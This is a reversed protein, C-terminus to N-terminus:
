NMEKIKEVVKELEMGRSAKVLVVDNEELIENLKIDEKNDYHYVLSPRFGEKLAEEAIYKANDGVLVLVDAKNVSYAGVSRHGQEAYEGLEFIDGLIAVKRRNYLSLIDLSAKMSDPSANYTDNIITIGNKGNEVIDLRMPTLKFDRLGERIKRKDMGLTLGVAIASMANYVNHKGSVPIIYEGIEGNVECEFICGSETMHYHVCKIDNGDEFGVRIVKYGCEDVNVKKLYPDDGNIILTNSEKFNTTIEMKAQLIGDQSGLREVHSLGINTIIGIDPEVVDALYEIEKFGSMGMEIVACEHSEDLNFLTLPVGFQNNLNKENKLSNFQKSVVSYVMDRTTTKGVSGTIGVCQIDFKKKYRKAIDGLAIETNGVAIITADDYKLDINASENVLFARCGNEYASEIFKHGDLSEGIIAVFLAGKCAERSDIVIKDIDNENNKLLFIGSVSKLIEDSTMKIM